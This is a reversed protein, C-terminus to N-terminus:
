KTPSLAPSHIPKPTLAEIRDSLAATQATCSALRGNAEDLLQRYATLAGDPKQQAFAPTAVLALIMVLYKMLGNGSLIHSAEM